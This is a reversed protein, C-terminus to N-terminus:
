SVKNELLDMRERLNKINNEVRVVDTETHFIRKSVAEFQCEIKVNIDTRLEQVATWVAVIKEYSGRESISAPTESRLQL